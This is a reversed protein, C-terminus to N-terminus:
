RERGAIRHVMARTALTTGQSRPSRTSCWVGRITQAFRRMARWSRCRARWDTWPRPSWTLCRAFRECLTQSRTMIARVLKDDTLGAAHMELGLDTARLAHDMAEVFAGSALDARSWERLCTILSTTAQRRVKDTPANEVAWSFLRLADAFQRNSVYLNGLRNATDHTGFYAHTAEALEIAAPFDRLAHALHGSYFYGVWCREEETECSALASKYFATAKDARGSISAFFADIRDVEFYGASIDRARDMTKSAAAADGAKNERLARELLHAVAGDSTSRWFVSKSDFTRGHEAVRRRDKERDQHLARERRYIDEVLDSEPVPPLFSRTTSSLSLLDSGEDDDPAQTRVLLSRQTLIKIGRRLADIEIESIVALHEFSVPRDLVHLVQLLLTEADGLGEVVNEICFRLLEGQDRLADTPPKGTAVSLIYWRIALPSYRLKEFRTTSIRADTWEALENSGSSRAFRRFLQTASLEDLPGVVRTETRDGVGVRSTLLFTVDRDGLADDLAFFEDGHLTELNDVM